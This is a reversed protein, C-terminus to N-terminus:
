TAHQAVRERYAKQMDKLVELPVNGTVGGGAKITGYLVKHHFDLGELTIAAADRYSAIDYALWHRERLERDLSDTYALPENPKFDYENFLAQEELEALQRKLVKRMAELPEIMRDVKAIEQKLRQQEDQM